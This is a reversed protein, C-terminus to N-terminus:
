PTRVWAVNTPKNKGKKQDVKENEYVFHRGLSTKKLRRAHTKLM